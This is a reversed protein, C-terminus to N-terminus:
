KKWSWYIKNRIPYYWEYRFFNKWKFHDDVDAIFELLYGKLEEYEEETYHEEFVSEKGMLTIPYSKSYHLMIEKIVNDVGIDDLKGYTVCYSVLNCIEFTQSNKLKKTPLKYETNGSYSWFTYWVSNSWRSYSM